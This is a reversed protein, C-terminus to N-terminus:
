YEEDARRQDDASIERHKGNGGDGKDDLYVLRDCQVETVFRKVNEKDMYDRTRIRGEVYVKSGKRLYKQANMATDGWLLVRHWETREQPRGTKDKWKENTAVALTTAPKNDQTYGVEVDKGLNGILIVRNVSGSM